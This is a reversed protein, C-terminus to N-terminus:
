INKIGIDDRIESIKQKAIIRVKKSGDSLLDNIITKDSIYNEYSERIPTLEKNISEYLLEKAEGWSRDRICM